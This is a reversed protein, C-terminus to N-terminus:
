AEWGQSCTAKFTVYVRLLIKAHGIEFHRVANCVPSKSLAWGKQETLGLVLTEATWRGLNFSDRARAINGKGHKIKKQCNKGRFKRKLKARVQTFPMTFFQVQFNVRLKYSLKRSHLPQIKAIMSRENCNAAATSTFTHQTYQFLLYLPFWCGVYTSFHGALESM